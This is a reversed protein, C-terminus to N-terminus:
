KRNNILCEHLKLSAIASLDFPCHSASHALPKRAVYTEKGKDIVLSTHEKRIEAQSPKQFNIAFFLLIGKM